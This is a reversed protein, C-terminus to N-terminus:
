LFMIVKGNVQWIEGTEVLLSKGEREILYDKHVFIRNPNVSYPMRIRQVNIGEKLLFKAKKKDVVSSIEYRGYPLKNCDEETIYEVQAIMESLGLCTCFYWKRNKIRNTFEHHFENPLIAYVLYDPQILWEQNVMTAKEWLNTGEDRNKVTYPLASPPDKRFKANHWHKKPVKGGIAIKADKLKIQSTDKALGLIAGIFGLLATRPPFPYTPACHNAEGILFHGYKGYYRFIVAKM